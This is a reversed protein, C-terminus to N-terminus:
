DLVSHSVDITQTKKAMLERTRRVLDLTVNSSISGSVTGSIVKKETAKHGARDLLNSAVDSRVKPDLM